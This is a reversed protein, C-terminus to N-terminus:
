HTKQLEQQRRECCYQKSNRPNSPLLRRAANRQHPVSSSSIGTSGEELISRRDTQMIVSRCIVSSISHHAEISLHHIPHIISLSLHSMSHHSSRHNIRIHIYLHIRRQTYSHIRSHKSRMCSGPLSNCVTKPNCKM